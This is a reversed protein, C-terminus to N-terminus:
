KQRLIFIRKKEHDTVALLSGDPHIALAGGYLKGFHTAIETLTFSDPERAPTLKLVRQSAHSMPGSSGEAAYLVGSSDPAAVLASPDRVPESLQCRILRSGDWRIVRRTLDDVPEPTAGTFGKNRNFLYVGRINVAVDVPASLLEDETLLELPGNNDLRVRWLSGKGAWPGSGADAVLIDGERLAAGPPIAGARVFAVAELSSYRQDSYPLDPMEKGEPTYRALCDPALM